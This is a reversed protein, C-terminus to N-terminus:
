LAKSDADQPSGLTVSRFPFHPTQTITDPLYGDPTAQIPKAMEAPPCDASVRFAPQDLGVSPGRLAVDSPLAGLKGHVRGAADSITLGALGDPQAALEVAEDGNWLSVGATSDGWLYLGAQSRGGRDYLDVSARGGPSAAMEMRVQGKDYFSLTGDGGSRGVLTVHNRGNPDRFALTPSGDRDTGLEVRVRGQPDTVVFKEARLERSRSLLDTGACVVAMIALFGGAVVWLMQRRERELTELRQVVAELNTTEM